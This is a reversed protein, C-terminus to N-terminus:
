NTSKRQNGALLSSFATSLPPVICGRAFPFHAHLIAYIIQSVQDELATRDVSFGNPGYIPTTPCATSPDFPAQARVGNGNVCEKGVDKICGVYSPVTTPEILVPACSNDGQECLTPIVGLVVQGGCLHSAFSLIIVGVHVASLGNEYWCSPRKYPYMSTNAHEKLALEREKEFSPAEKPANCAVM